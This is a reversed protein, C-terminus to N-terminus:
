REGAKSKSPLFFSASPPTPRIFVERGLMTRSTPLESIRVCSLISARSHNSFIGATLWSTQVRKKESVLARWTSSTTRREIELDRASNSVGEGMIVISSHFARGGCGMASARLLSAWLTHDASQVLSAVGSYMKSDSIKLPCTDGSYLSLVSRM